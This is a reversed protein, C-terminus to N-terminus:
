MDDEACETLGSNALFKAKTKLGLRNTVKYRECADQRTLVEMSDNEMHVNNEIMYEFKKQFIETLDEAPDWTMFIIKPKPFKDPNAVVRDIGVELATTKGVGYQGIAAFSFSNLAATQEPGLYLAKELNKKVESELKVFKKNMKDHFVTSTKIMYLSGLGVYRAAVRSLLDLAAPTAPSINETGLKRSLSSDGLASFQKEIDSQIQQALPETPDITDVFSNDRGSLEDRFAIKNNCNICIEEM